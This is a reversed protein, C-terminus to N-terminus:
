RENSGGTLLVRLGLGALGVAGLALCLMHLWGLSLSGLLINAGSFPSLPRIDPHMVSDLAVHSYGGLVAGLFVQRGTLQQWGFPNPLRLRQALRRIVGFLALTAGIVLSAGIYTHFFGHV